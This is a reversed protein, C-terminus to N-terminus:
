EIGQEFDCARAVWVCVCVFLFLAKAFFRAVNLIFFQGQGTLTNDSLSFSYINELDGRGQLTLIMTSGVSKWPMFDRIPPNKEVRSESECRETRVTHCLMRKM